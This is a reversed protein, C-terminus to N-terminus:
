RMLIDSRIVTQALGYRAVLSQVDDCFWSPSRPSVYISEILTTLDVEVYAGQWALQTTEDEAMYITAARLEREYEYSKGKYISPYFVNPVMHGTEEQVRALRAGERQLDIYKVVGVHVDTPAPQFSQALRQFTSRIAVSHSPGSYIAWMAASEVENMHWCNVAIQTRAVAYLMRLQLEVNRVKEPDSRWAGDFGDLITKLAAESVFGERADSMHDLRAFYLARRELLSIFKALSVYRWVPTNPEDPPEFIPSETYM